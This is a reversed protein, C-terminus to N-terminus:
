PKKKWPFNEGPFYKLSHSISNVGMLKLITYPAGFKLMRRVFTYRLQYFSFRIGTVKRLKTVMYQIIKSSYGRGRNPFLLNCKPLTPRKNLWKKMEKKVEQPMYVIRSKQSRGKSNIIITGKSLNVDEVKIKLIEMPRLGCMLGLYFAPRFWNNPLNKLLTKIQVESLPVPSKVSCMQYHSKLAPNSKIVGKGLLWKYFNKVSALNTNVTSPNFGRKTLWKIYESITSPTVDKIRIKRKELWKTFRVLVCVYAKRTEKMMNLEKLFQETLKM